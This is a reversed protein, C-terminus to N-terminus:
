HLESGDNLDRTSDFAPRLRRSLRCRVPRATPPRFIPARVDCFRPLWGRGLGEGQTTKWPYHAQISNIRGLTIHYSQYGSGPDVPLSHLTILKKSCVVLGSTPFYRAGKRVEVDNVLRSGWDLKRNDDVASPGRDATQIYTLVLDILKNGTHV